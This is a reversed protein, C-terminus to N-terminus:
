GTPAKGARISTNRTSIMTWRTIPTILLRSRMKDLNRIKVPKDIVWAKQSAAATCGRCCHGRLWTPHFMTDHTPLQTKTRSSIISRSAPPVTTSSLIFFGHVNNRSLVLTNAGAAIHSNPHNQLVRTQFDFPALTTFVKSRPRTKTFLNQSGLADATAVTLFFFVCGRLVTTSVAVLISQSCGISQGGQQMRVLICRLCVHACSSHLPRQQVFKRYIRITALRPM